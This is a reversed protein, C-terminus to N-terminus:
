PTKLMTTVAPLQRFTKCMEHMFRECHRSLSTESQAHFLFYALYIRLGKAIGQKHALFALLERESHVCSLVNEKFVTLSTVSLETLRQGAEELHSCVFVTWRLGHKHQFDFITGIERQHMGFWTDFAYSRMYFPRFIHLHWDELTMAGKFRSGEFLYNAAHFIAVLRFRFHNNRGWCFLHAICRWLFTDRLLVDERKAIWQQQTSQWEFYLAIPQLFKKIRTNEQTNTELKAIDLPATLAFCRYVANAHASSQEMAM